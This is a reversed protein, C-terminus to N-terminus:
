PYTYSARITSTSSLPDKGSSIVAVDGRADIREFRYEAPGADLGGFTIVFTQGARSCSPGIGADCFGFLDQGVHGPQFYLQFSDGTTVAGGLTLEFVKTVQHGSSPDASTASATPQVVPTGTEVASPAGGVAGCGGLSLSMAVLLAFPGAWARETGRCLRLKSRRRMRM